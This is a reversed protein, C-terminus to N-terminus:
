EYVPYLLKRSDGVYCEYLSFTTRSMANMLPSKKGDIVVDLAPVALLEQKLETTLETYDDYNEVIYYVVQDVYPRYPEMIDDVLCYANYKNAHHIGM